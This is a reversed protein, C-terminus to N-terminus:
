RAMRWPNEKRHAMSEITRFVEDSFSNWEEMVEAWARPHLFRLRALKWYGPFFSRRESFLVSGLLTAVGFGSGLAFALWPSFETFSWAMSAAWAGMLGIWLPFLVCAYGIKMTAIVDREKVTLRALVDVLRFPVIWVPVSIAEVPVSVGFHYVGHLLLTRVFSTRKSHSEGWILQSPSVRMALLMRRLLQTKSMFEPRELFAPFFSEQFIRLERPSHPKRGYTTEFLFLCNRKDEWNDFQALGDRLSDEIARNIDEPKSEPDTVFIPKCFYVGLDSRFEDKEFYDIAVPQIVGQFNPNAAREVAELLMLSAGSRIRQLHPKDHSIGEPFIMLCDGDVLAQAGARFASQNLKRRAEEEPEGDAASPGDAKALMDQARYVPIAQVNLLLPRMVPHDWLTHKAVPRLTVPSMGYLIAPDVIASTHNAVWICSRGMYPHGSVYVNGFFGKALLRALSKLM